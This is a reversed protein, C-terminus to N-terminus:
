VKLQNKNILGEIRATHEPHTVSVSILTPEFVEMEFLHKNARLWLVADHADKDFDRLIQMKRSSVDNLQKLRITSNALAWSALISRSQRPWLRKIGGDAWRVLMPRRNPSSKPIEKFFVKVSLTSNNRAYLM